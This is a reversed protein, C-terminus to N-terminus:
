YVHIAKILFVLPAIKLSFLAVNATLQRRLKGFTVFAKRFLHGLSCILIASVSAHVGLSTYM